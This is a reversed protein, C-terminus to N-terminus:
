WKCDRAIADMLNAAKLANTTAEDNTNSSEAAATFAKQWFLWRELGVIPGTYLPGGAWAKEESEGTERPFQAIEDFLLQGSCLIWMAAASIYESYYEGRDYDDELGDRLVWVALNIADVVGAAWTRAVFSSMNVLSEWSFLDPQDINGRKKKNSPLMEHLLKTAQKMNLDGDPELYRKLVRFANLDSYGNDNETLDLKLSLATM